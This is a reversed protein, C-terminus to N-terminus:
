KAKKKKLFKKHQHNLYILWIAIAAGLSDILVDTWVGHRGPVIYQHYEDSIAYMVTFIFAWTLNWYFNKKEIQSLLRYILFALVGFEFMHALKRIIFTWIDFKIFVDNLPLSSLIFIALAWFVLLFWKEFTQFKKNALIVQIKEHEIIKKIKSAIKPCNM